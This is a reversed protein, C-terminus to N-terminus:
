LCKSLTIIQIIIMIIIIIIIIIILVRNDKNNAVLNRGRALEFIM